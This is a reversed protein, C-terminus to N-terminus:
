STGLLWVRIGLQPPVYTQYGQVGSESFLQQPPYQFGMSYPLQGTPQLAGPAPALPEALLYLLSTSTCILGM